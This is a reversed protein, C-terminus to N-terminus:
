TTMEQVLEILELGEPLRDRWLIAPDLAFGTLLRSVIRGKEDKALRRFRGSPELAYVDAEERLPDFLWYEGVGAAEYDLLKPGHDREDSEPSVIEIVIDAPGDVYTAKIRDANKNFIIMLDPERKPLDGHLKMPVGALMLRGLKRLGLVQRLLAVLFMIIEQHQTNNTVIVEVNGMHYEAHVEAFQTLFEEFTLGTAAYQKQAEPAEMM